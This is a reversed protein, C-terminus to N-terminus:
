TLRFLKQANGTTTIAIKESSLGTIEAIKDGIEKVWASENRKGRYPVPALYPCDTELVIHELGVQRVIAPLNSKPFSVIGGIGLLFNMEVVAQAEELTGSFCHFVGRLATNKYPALITAVEKFAERCHIVLPLKHELAWQIQMDFAEQQEILFTRDRYLDMGVEGVAVFNIKQDFFRALTALEEKYNEKVYCPHLGIMPLCFGPYKESVVLLEPLSESDVCALLVHSLTQRARAVVADLDNAYEEFYLHAHTDVFLNM